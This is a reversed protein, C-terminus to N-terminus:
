PRYRGGTRVSSPDRDPDQGGFVIMEDGTWVATHGGRRTPRSPWAMTQWTESSPDWLGGGDLVSADEGWGLSESGYGGWALVARGVWSAGPKWGDPKECAPLIAVLAIAAACRTALAM